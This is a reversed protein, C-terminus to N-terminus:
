SHGFACRFLMYISRTWLDEEVVPETPVVRDILIASAYSVSSVVLQLNDQFCQAVGVMVRQCREELVEQPTLGGVAVNCEEVFLLSWAHQRLKESRYADPYVLGEWRLVFAPLAGSFALDEAGAGRYYQAAAPARLALSDGIEATIATLKTELNAQLISEVAAAQYHALRLDPM